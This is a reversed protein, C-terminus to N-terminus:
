RVKALTVMVGALDGRCHITAALGGRGAHTLSHRPNEPAPIADLSISVRGFAFKTKEKCVKRNGKDIMQIKKRDIVCNHRPNQEGKRYSYSFKRMVKMKTCNM